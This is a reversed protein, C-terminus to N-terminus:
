WNYELHNLGISDIMSDYLAYVQICIRRHILIKLMCLLYMIILLNIVRAISIVHILSEM